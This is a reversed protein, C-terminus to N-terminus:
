VKKLVAYFFGDGGNETPLFQKLDGQLKARTNEQLFREIQLKNEDPLISCTAYVLTGGTKLYAWINNLIAYQLATLQAIDSDRRLWKIDPHRRIVGTASCPADLLIRDFQQGECWQEPTLGDGVKVEAHLNLRTLNEHIRKVRSPDIDVALVQAKPAVELIHTTKGGPAACMDLIYEGNQPALLYAAYQASLDQVTVAGNDFYPLKTVNVPSFLRLACPLEAFTDSEIQQEALLQQYETVTYRNLNVRLWMPPKQNNANVIAQWQQPYAQKLRALLWSPHLSQQNQQKNDQTFKQQLSTQQRLFERLVGNIVGKLQTKKLTNVANVTEGVAAHEPIRTYLIQYIGVLLLYHLIRNKGTLVKSMLTHIYFNLEPLVRMVGFCIEQVLAKDKDAIKHNLTILTASLSQGEELVNFITQACIARINQHSRNNM